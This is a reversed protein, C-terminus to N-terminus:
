GQAMGTMRTMKTIGAMRYIETIGNMRMMRTMETGDVKMRTIVTLRGMGTMRTKGIMGSMRIM